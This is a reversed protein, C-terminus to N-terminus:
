SPALIQGPLSLNISNIHCKSSMPRSHGPHFPSRHLGERTALV